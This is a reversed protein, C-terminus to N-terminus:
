HAFSRPTPNNFIWEDIEGYAINGITCFYMDLNKPDCEYKVPTVVARLWAATVGTLNLHSIQYSVHKAITFLETFLPASSITKIVSIGTAGKVLM